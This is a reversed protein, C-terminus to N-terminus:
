KREREEVVFDFCKLDCGRERSTTEFGKEEEKSQPRERERERKVNSNKNV